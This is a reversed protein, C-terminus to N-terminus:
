TGVTISPSSRVKSHIHQKCRKDIKISLFELWFAAIAKERSFFTSVTKNQYSFLRYVCNRRSRPSHVIYDRLRGLHLSMTLYTLKELDSACNWCEHSRRLLGADTAVIGCPFGGNGSGILGNMQVKTHVTLHVHLCEIEMQFILKALDRKIRPLKWLELRFWSLQGRQM